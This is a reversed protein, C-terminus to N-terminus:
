GDENEGEADEGEEEDEDGEDEDEDDSKKAERKKRKNKKLQPYKEGKVTIYPVDFDNLFAVEDLHVRSIWADLQSRGEPYTREDFVHYAHMILPHSDPIDKFTFSLKVSSGVAVTHDGSTALDSLGYFSLEPLPIPIDVISKSSKLALGSHNL